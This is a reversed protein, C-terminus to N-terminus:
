SSNVGFAFSCKRNCETVGTTMDDKGNEFHLEQGNLSELVSFSNANSFECFLTGVTVAPEQCINPRFCFLRKDFLKKRQGCDKVIHGKQGCV